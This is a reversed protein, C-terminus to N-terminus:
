SVLSLIHGEIELIKVDETLVNVDSAKPPSQENSTKTPSFAVLYYERNCNNIDTLVSRHKNDYFDRSFGDRHRENFKKRSLHSGKLALNCADPRHLDNPSVIGSAPRKATSVAQPTSTSPVLTETDSDSAHSVLRM